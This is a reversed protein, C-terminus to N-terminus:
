KEQSGLAYQGPLQIQFLIFLDALFEKVGFICIGNAHLPIQM